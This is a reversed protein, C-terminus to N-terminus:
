NALDLKQFIIGDLMDRNELDFWENLDSPCSESFYLYKSRIGSKLILIMQHLDWSVIFKFVWWSHESM